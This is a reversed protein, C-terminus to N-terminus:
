FLKGEKKEKNERKKREKEKGCEESKKLESPGQEIVFICHVIIYTL